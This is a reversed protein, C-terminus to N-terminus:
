FYTVKELSIGETNGRGDSKQDKVQCFSDCCLCPFLVNLQAAQHRAPTKTIKTKKKIIKWEQRFACLCSFFSFFTTGLYWPFSCKDWKSCLHEFVIQQSVRSFVFQRM